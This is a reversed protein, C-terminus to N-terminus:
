ENRTCGRVVAEETYFSVVQARVLETDVMRGSSSTCHPFLFGRYAVVIYRFNSEVEMVEIFRSPHNFATAEAVHVGHRPHENEMSSTDHPLLFGRYVVATYRINGEEELTNLMYPALLQKALARDMVYLKLLDPPTILLRQRLQELLAM